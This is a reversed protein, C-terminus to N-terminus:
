CDYDDPTRSERLRQIEEERARKCEECQAPNHGPGLSGYVTINEKDVPQM